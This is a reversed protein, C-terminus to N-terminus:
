YGVGPMLPSTGETNFDKSNTMPLVSYDDATPMRYCSTLSFLALFLLIKSFSM